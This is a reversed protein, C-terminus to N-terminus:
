SFGIFESFKSEFEAGQLGLTYNINGSKIVNVVKSILQNNFNPWDKKRM